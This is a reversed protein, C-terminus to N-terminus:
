RQISNPTPAVASAPTSVTSSRCRTVPCSSTSLDINEAIRDARVSTPIACLGQELHLRLIVQAATKGHRTAIARVTPHQLPSGSTKAANKWYVNVGGIPSWAQTVVGLNAHVKRLREQTFFPHVEVQNVAPVVTTQAHLETLHQENFNSVGIARVRGEELLTELARYAAM